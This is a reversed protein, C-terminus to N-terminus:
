PQRHHGNREGKEGENGNGDLRIDVEGCGRLIELGEEAISETVLVKM